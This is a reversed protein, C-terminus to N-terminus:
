WRRCRASSCTRGRVPQRGRWAVHVAIITYTAANNHRANRAGTNRLHILAWARTRIDIHRACTHVHSRTIRHGADASMRRSTNMKAEHDTDVPPWRSKEQTLRESDTPSISSCPLREINEKRKIM